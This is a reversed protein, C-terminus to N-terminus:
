LCIINDIQVIARNIDDFTSDYTISEAIKSITEKQKVSFKECRGMKDLACLLFGILLGLRMGNKLSTDNSVYMRHTDARFSSYAYDKILHEFKLALRDLDFIIDDM